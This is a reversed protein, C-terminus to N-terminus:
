LHNHCGEFKQSLEGRPQNHPFKHRRESHCNIALRPEKVLNTPKYVEQKIKSYRSKGQKVEEKNVKLQEIIAKAAM